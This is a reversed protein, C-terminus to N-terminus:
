EWRSLRKTCHILNYNKTVFASKRCRLLFRRGRETRTYVANLRGTTRRLNRALGEAYEGRAALIEPCAMARYYSFVGFREPILIYRPNRIPSFMDRLAAHFLAQDHLSANLLEVSVAVGGSNKKVAVRADTSIFSFERMTKM